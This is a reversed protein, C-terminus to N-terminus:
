KKAKTKKDRYKLIVEALGDYDHINKASLDAGSYGLSGYVTAYWKGMSFIQNLVPDYFFIHNNKYQTATTINVFGNDVLKKSSELYVDPVPVHAAILKELADKVWDSRKLSIGVILENMPRPIVVNVYSPIGIKNYM